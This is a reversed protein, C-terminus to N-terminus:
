TREKNKEAGVEGIFAEFFVTLGRAEAENVLGVPESDEFALERNPLWTM